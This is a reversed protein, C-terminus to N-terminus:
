KLMYNLGTFAGNYAPVAKWISMTNVAVTVGANLAGGNITGGLPPYITVSNAGYNTVTGEEGAQIATPLVAGAGSAVAGFVSNVAQISYATAQTTGTATVGTNSSGNDFDGLIGTVVLPAVGSGTLKKSQSM